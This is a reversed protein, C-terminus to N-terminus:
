PKMHTLGGLNLWSAGPRGSASVFAPFGIVNASDLSGKSDRWIQVVELVEPFAERMRTEIGMKLTADFEPM